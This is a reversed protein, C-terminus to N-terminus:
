KKKVKPITKLKGAETSSEKLSMSIFNYPAAVGSSFHSASDLAIEIM